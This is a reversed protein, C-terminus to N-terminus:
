VPRVLAGQVEGTTVDDVQGGAGGSEHGGRDDAGAQLLVALPRDRAVEHHHRDPGSDQPQAPVAEVATVRVVGGGVGGGGHDVGVERGGGGHHHPDEHVP